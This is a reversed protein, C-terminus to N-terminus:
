HICTGHPLPYRLCFYLSFVIVQLPLCNHYFCIPHLYLFNNITCMYEIMTYKCVFVCTVCLHRLYCVTIPISYLLICPVQFPLSHNYFSTCHIYLFNNGISIYKIITYKCLFVCTVHLLWLYCIAIVIGYLLICDGAITFLFQLFIYFTLLSISKMYIHITNHFKCCFHQTNTIVGFSSIVFLLVICYLLRCHYFIM